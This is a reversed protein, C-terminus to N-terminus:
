YQMTTLTLTSRINATTRIKSIIHRIADTDDATVKIVIDFAGIVIVGDDIDQIKLLDDLAQKEHGIECTILVYAEVM